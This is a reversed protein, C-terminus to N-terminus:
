NSDAVPELTKEGFILDAPMTLLITVHGHSVVMELSPVVSMAPFGVLCQHRMAEDFPVFSPLTPAGIEAAWFIADTQGLSSPLM